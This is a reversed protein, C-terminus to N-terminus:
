GVLRFTAGHPLHVAEVGSLNGNIYGTLSVMGPEESTGHNVRIVPHSEDEARQIERWYVSGDDCVVSLDCGLEQYIPISCGCGTGIGIKSVRQDPNGIVQVLPEGVPAVKGSVTRAFAEVTTEKIDYRHQTGPYEGENTAVPPGELGLFRAWAWPIGIDPWRDWTDHLRVVTLGNQEIFRKKEGIIGASDIQDLEHDHAYFTPEHTVLLDVGEQVAKRVANYSSIWTVICTSVSKEPDGVIVRDVTRDRDIWPARDLFHNLLEIATL